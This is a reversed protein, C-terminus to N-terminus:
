DQRVHGLRGATPKLSAHGCFHAPFRASGGLDSGIGLISGHGGIMAGEGGSSGSCSRDPKHPNRTEGFIGNQCSLSRMGQPVNTRIFPVAGKSKLVKILTSDAKLPIDVLEGFGITCDLGELGCAEKLSIPIGHLPGRQDAPLVDLKAALVEASKIIDTIGNTKDNVELAKTQYARLVETASVSGSQLADYLHQFSWQPIETNIEIAKLQARLEEIDRKARQGRAHMKRLLQRRKQLKFVYVCAVTGTLLVASTVAARLLNQTGLTNLLKDIMGGAAKLVNM